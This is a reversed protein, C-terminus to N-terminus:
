KEQSRLFNHNEKVKGIIQPNNPQKNNCDTLNQPRGCIPLIKHDEM